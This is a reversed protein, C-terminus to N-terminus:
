GLYRTAARDLAEARAGARRRLSHVRRGALEEWEHVGFVRAVEATIWWGELGAVEDLHTLLGAVTELDPTAGVQHASMAAVLRAQIEYRPTGLLAADTALSQAGALAGDFDGTAQDLRARILRGRLEHRWRFAHEVETLPMAERLLTHAGDFDGALLRGSALDLLGNALPEDLGHARASDIAARNLEDAEGLEGLNRVIWGRLNLPRPTWRHAGMRAVDSELTDLTSLAEDVRGLMALAMTAVMGGYANPFRYVALGRGTQQRVLGLTEAPRGQNMLLWALWAEAMGGSAEPADGLAGELRVQAGDLDGSAL